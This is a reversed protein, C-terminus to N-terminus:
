KLGHCAGHQPRVLPQPHLGRGPLARHWGKGEGRQEPSQCNGRGRPQQVPM